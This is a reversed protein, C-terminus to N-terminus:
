CCNMPHRHLCAHCNLQFNGDCTNNDNIISIFITYSLSQIGALMASQDHGLVNVNVILM